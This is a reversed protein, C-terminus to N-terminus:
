LAACGCAFIPQRVEFRRFAIFWGHSPPNYDDGRLGFVITLGSVGRPGERATPLGASSVPRYWCKAHVVVSIKLLPSMRLTQAFGLQGLLPALQARCSFSM